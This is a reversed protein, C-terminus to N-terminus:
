IKVTGFKVANEEPILVAMDITTGWISSKKECKRVIGGNINTTLTFKGAQLTSMGCIEFSVYKKNDIEVTIGNM